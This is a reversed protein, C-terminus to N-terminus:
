KGGLRKLGDTAVTNGPDVSLLQTYTAKAKDTQKETEYMQGLVTLIDKDNPNAAIVKECDPIATAFTKANVRLVCRARLMDQNDPALTLGDDLAASAKADDKLKVACIYQLLPIQFDAPRLPKAADLDSMAKACDDKNRYANGRALYIQGLDEGELGKSDILKTCKDIVDDWKSASVADTCPKVLDGARQRAEKAERERRERPTERADVPAATVAVGFALLALLARKM